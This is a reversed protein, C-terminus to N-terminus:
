GGIGWERIIRMELNRLPSWESEVTGSVSPNCEFKCFDRFIQANVNM